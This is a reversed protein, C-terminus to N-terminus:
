RIAVLESRTVTKASKGFYEIILSQLKKGTMM